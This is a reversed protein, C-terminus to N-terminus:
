PICLIHLKIPNIFLNTNHSYRELMSSAMVFYLPTVKSLFIFSFCVYMRFFASSPDSLAATTNSERQGRITNGPIVAATIASPVFALLLM